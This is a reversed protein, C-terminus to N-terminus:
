TFPPPKGPRSFTPSDWKVVGLQYEAIEFGLSKYLREAPSGEDAAIVLNELAFRDLAFLGSEIVLRRAIGQRRYEPHTQVSQYRGLRNVCFIGLDAVLRSGIFAGFWEGMGARAMARYRDMQRQRFQRYDFESFGPNRCEVQNEISQTWDADVMLPKVTVEQKSNASSYPKRTALVVLRDVRYGNKLFPEIVGQDNDITDWGFVRHIVAPATGIERAFLEQWRQYDGEAPPHNFLLYNGWYFSPNTPTRIVLYNGRDIIEGDFDAFMLDTQYGLSKVKM